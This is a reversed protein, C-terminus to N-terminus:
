DNRGGPILEWRNPMGRTARDQAACNRCRAHRPSITAGCDVCVRRERVALPEIAIRRWNACVQRGVREIAACAEPSGPRLGGFPRDEGVHQRGTAVSM